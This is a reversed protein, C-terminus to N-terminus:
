EYRLAIIPDVASAKRAPIFGSALSVVLLTFAALTLTLPDTPKIGYLQSGVASSLAIALPVGIVIGAVCLVAVEGLVMKLVSARAAGLAM